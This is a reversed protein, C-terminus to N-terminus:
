AEGDAVECDLDSPADLDPEDSGEASIQDGELMEFTTAQSTPTPIRGQRLHRRTRGFDGYM